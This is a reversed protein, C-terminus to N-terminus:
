IFETEELVQENDTIEVKMDGTVKMRIETGKTTFPSFCSRYNVCVIYEGDFYFENGNIDKYNVDRNCTALKAHRGIWNLERPKYDPYEYRFAAYMEPFLLSLQRLFMPVIKNQYDEIEGGIMAHPRASCIMMINEPTLVSKDLLKSNVGFGPNSWSLKGHENEHIQIYPLKLFVLNGIRTVYNYSPYKLKAYFENEKAERRVEHFKKSRKTGGDIKEVRGVGCRVGFLTTVCFCKGEKYASCEKAQDCYIYEARLRSDRSGVGYLGVNILESM